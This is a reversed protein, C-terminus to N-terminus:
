PTAPTASLRALWDFVQEQRQRPFRNFDLPTELQLASEQGLLRYIKRCPEVEARVDEVPAYRDLTPAILLMPRPAILALAQDYDFPLRSEEGIFFGLRPSLGHLHSDHRIGETGKGPTDLRLPDIGGAAAIARVRSDLAAALLGVKAGLGYGVVYIRSPDIVDLASVADIAARTDAVMKGLLSWKPYQDYFYRADLVRTGFGLQDFALVAFGRKTLSEFPPGAYRSYGTAYSYAHLWVVLPWKGPKPRGDAGAAPYYLDARLGDGFPLSASGMNPRKLPRGFLLALLNDNPAIQWLNNPSALIQRSPTLPLGAPEEGLSWLISKRLAQKRQDWSAASGTVFDGVERKPYQLPDITEGSAKLWHEFTYGNAWTELRPYTKRGFVTDFFNVFNEIDGVTTSHEGARLHLWINEERGLFRFVGLASRYAQEYGFPNGEHEAYGAYMMLGRPAVLALLMNQDVPLKQERGAFFRLRPHFWHTNHPGGTIGEISGVAFIDPTYRWPLCEGTTGSSAVVAGIRQDFATALLAQKGNRSHGTIGIKRKDVEPLTYLYDVARMGAWAWRAICAFDFEPYVEIFKDSDDPYGYHADTAYYFCAIYGRRIPTYIWGHNPPQDTLFVPFPGAGDPIFLQLRLTARHDPGFELRVDRVTVGGERHTGTVVARLNDPAPPMRGYVWREFESRIWQRQREWQEMTTIPTTRMGERLLLPDPLGAISPMSDFDPPLEGTRRISDEWSKDFASIRGTLEYSTTPPLIKQLTELLQKRRELNSTGPSIQARACLAALSLAAVAVWALTKM